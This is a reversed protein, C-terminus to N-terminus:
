DNKIQLYQCKANFSEQYCVLFKNKPEVDLKAVSGQVCNSQCLTTFKSSGSDFYDYAIQDQNGVIIGFICFIKSLNFSDCQIFRGDRQFSRIKKFTKETLNIQYVQFQTGKTM